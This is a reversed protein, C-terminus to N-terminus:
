ITKINHDYRQLAKANQSSDWSISRRRFHNMRYRALRSTTGGAGFELLNPVSGNPDGNNEDNNGYSRFETNEDIVHDGRRLSKSQNLTFATKRNSPSMLRSLNNLSSYNCNKDHISNKTGFSDNANSQILGSLFSTASRSKRPSPLIVSSSQTRLFKPAGSKQKDNLVDDFSLTGSSSSENRVSSHRWRNKGREKPVARESKDSAM